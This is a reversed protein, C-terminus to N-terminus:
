YRPFHMLSNSHNTSTLLVAELV